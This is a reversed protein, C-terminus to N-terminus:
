ESPYSEFNCCRACMCCLLCFLVVYFTCICVNLITCCQWNLSQCQYDCCQSTCLGSLFLHLLHLLHLFAIFHTIVNFLVYCHISIYDIFMSPIVWIFPISIYHLTADHLIQLCMCFWSKLNSVTIGFFLFSQLMKRRLANQLWHTAINGCYATWVM